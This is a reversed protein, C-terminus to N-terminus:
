NEFNKLILNGFANGGANEYTDDGPGGDFEAKGAVTVDQLRLLDDGDNLQTYLSDLSAKSVRIQTTAHNGSLRTLGADTRQVNIDDAWLILQTAYSRPGPSGPGDITVIGGEGFLHVGLSRTARVDFLEVRTRSSDLAEELQVISFYEFRARSVKVLDQGDGMSASTFSNFQNHNVGIGDVLFVDNGVYGRTGQSNSDAYFDVENTTVNHLRLTDNGGSGAVLLRSTLTVPGYPIAASNNLTVDPAAPTNGRIVVADNGMGMQALISSRAHTNGVQLNTVLVKDHGGVLTLRMRDVGSVTVPGAQGDVTTNAGSASKGGAIVFQGPGAGKWVAIVNDKDDGTVVLRGDTVATTVGGAPCDRRDLSEM